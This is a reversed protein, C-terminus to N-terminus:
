SEALFSEEYIKFDEIKLQVSTDGNYENIEISYVIDLFIDSTRIIGKIIKDADYEDFNAYIQEKFKNLFGFMIGKIVKYGEKKFGFIITDKEDIIKLTEIQVLKTLFLPLPNGSGFPKALSLESALTYDIQELTLEKDITLTKEAINLNNDYNNNILERLPELNEKFLSLGAAMEHGGFREFLHQCKSLELFINYGVVSRASGKIMDEGLTLVITPKDVKDKIRGAVIGAVSEHVQDSYLVLVNDISKTAETLMLETAAKTMDKRIENLESLEKALSKALEEDDCIFLEVAMTATKLRGAANICPGITYGITRESINGLKCSKEELLYKLGLNHVEKNLMLLGLTVFIRNDERLEVIDCLTAIMVFVFLEQYLEKDMTKQLLEYLALAVKFSVGAACMEKFPYNCAITKPNIIADAQPLIVGQEHHDIVVVALGLEKAYAIEDIAAIGNDCAIILSVGQDKLNKIANKNLAYGEKERHPIYYIPAQGLSKLTKYLIVTSTVGDVDYDGFVVIKKNLHEIIIRLAKNLDNLLNHDNFYTDNPKLFKLATNKTRIGRNVLVQSLIPSIGLTKSMLEINAEKNNVLWKM